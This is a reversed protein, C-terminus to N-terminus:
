NIPIQLPRHTQYKVDEESDDMPIWPRGEKYESESSEEEDEDEEYKQQGKQYSENINSGSYNM